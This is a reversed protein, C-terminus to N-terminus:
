NSDMKKNPFRENFLGLDRRKLDSPSSIQCSQLYAINMYIRMSQRIYGSKQCADVELM